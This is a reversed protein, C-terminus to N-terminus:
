SFLAGLPFQATILSKELRPSLLLCPQAGESAKTSGQLKCGESRPVWATVEALQSVKM